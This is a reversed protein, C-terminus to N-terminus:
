LLGDQGQDRTEEISKLKTWYYVGRSCGYFCVTVVNTNYTENLIESLVTRRHCLCVGLPKLDYALVLQQWKGLGHDVNCAWREGLIICTFFTLLAGQKRSPIMTCELGDTFM